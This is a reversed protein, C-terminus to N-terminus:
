PCNSLLSYIFNHSLITNELLNRLNTNNAEIKTLVLAPNGQAAEDMPNAYDAHPNMPNAFDAHPDM